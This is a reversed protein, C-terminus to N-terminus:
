PLMDNIQRSKKWLFRPMRRMRDLNQKIEPLIDLIAMKGADIMQEPNSFDAWHTDGVVPTIVADAFKLQHAILIQKTIEHSRFYIALARKLEPPASLEYSVNVAIVYDAGMQRAVSSPVMNVVGGDICLADGIEVPPFAGPVASSAAVAQLVSGKDILVETGTRIDTAVACFPINLSQIDRDDVFRSFYERVDHSDLFSQRTVTSSLVQAKKIYGSFQDLFGSDGQEENRRLSHIKSEKFEPSKIFRVVERTIKAINGQASYKAGILAGMSTGVIMDIPIRSGELVEIVGLHALGRAAGGGLVLATKFKAM